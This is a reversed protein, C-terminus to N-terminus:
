GLRGKRLAQLIEDTQRQVDQSIGMLQNTQLLANQQVLNHRLTQLGAAETAVPSPQSTAQQSGSGFQAPERTAVFAQDQIDNVGSNREVIDSLSTNNLVRLEHNNFNGEYWFRDGDRMRSFQDVLIRKFTDGVLADGSDKEALGGIWLDVQDPSDYVQALKEGVGDRWIPDDFSEIRCLGLAERADNLSPLGHDRGRQTNLSALDFGGQGPPGFLFNRVDDVVFPDVAQATQAAFGRLIPDIGAETVKDPQFFADRLELHGQAIENGNEDLRLLTPSLMTHGLRFAAASFANSMDASVNKDYGQYEPMADAGLLAPLFENVTISQMEAVVWNRAEQYIKEDSWQPNDQALQEAVQNHERVWLTHMSTLGAHENARIDGAIFMGQDDKPLLNGESTKLKGGEFTRLSDATTKDSGYVNSGDIYATISNTQQNQGYADTFSDSRTFGITAQGTNMPDFEPDGKPVPINAPDGHEAHVLTIDHDLFQGWLWFMDSLGKRNGVSTDQDAVVNSIERASPLTAETCGGPERTSDQPLLRTLATEAKGWDPNQRNNGSGDYSRYEPEPQQQNQLLQILQQLLALVQELVQPNFPSHHHCHHHKAGRQAVSSQSAGSQQSRDSQGKAFVPVQTNIVSM